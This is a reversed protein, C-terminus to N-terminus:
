IVDLWLSAAVGMGRGEGRESLYSRYVESSGVTLKIMSGARDEICVVDALLWYSGPEHLRLPVAVRGGAEAFQTVDFEISRRRGTTPVTLRYGGLANGREIALILIVHESYPVTLRTVTRSSTRETRYITM